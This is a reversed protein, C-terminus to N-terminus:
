SGTRPVPDGVFARAQHAAIAAHCPRTDYAGDATVQGIPEEPPIQALLEPLM